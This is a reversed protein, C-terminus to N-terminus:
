MSDFVLHFDNSDFGDRTARYLLSWKDKHSFECLSILKAPQHGTLLLINFPDNYNLNLQGFSDHNFSLNPKIENYEGIIVSKNNNLHLGQVQLEELEGIIQETHQKNNCQTLLDDALAITKGQIVGQKLLKKSKLTEGM